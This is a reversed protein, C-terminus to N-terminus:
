GGDPIDNLVMLLDNLCNCIENYHFIHPCTMMSNKNLKGLTQNPFVTDHSVYMNRAKLSLSQMKVPM